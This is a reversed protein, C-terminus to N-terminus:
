SRRYSDDSLAYSPGDPARVILVFPDTGGKFGMSELDLDTALGRCCFGMQVYLFLRTRRM